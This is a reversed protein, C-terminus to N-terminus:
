DYVGSLIKLSIITHIVPAKFRFDIKCRFYSFFKLHLATECIFLHSYGTIKLDNRPCKKWTGQQLADWPETQQRMARGRNGSAEKARGSHAPEGVRHLKFNTARRTKLRRANRCVEDGRGMGMNNFWEPSLSTLHTYKSRQIKRNQSKLMNDGVQIITHDM